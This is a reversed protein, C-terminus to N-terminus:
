MCLRLKGIDRSFSNGLLGLACGSAFLNAVTCSVRVNASLERSKGLAAGKNATSLLGYLAFTLTNVARYDLKSDTIHSRYSNFFLAFFIAFSNEARPRM